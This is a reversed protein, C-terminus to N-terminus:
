RGIVLDNIREGIRIKKEVQFDTLRLSHLRGGELAVIMYDGDPRLALMTPSASLPITRVVKWSKRDIVMICNNEYSALYVYNSWPSFEIGWPRGLDAVRKKLAFDKVGIVYLDDSNLCSVLVADNDPSVKIDIPNYGVPLDGMVKRDSMRICSVTRAGSNIVYAMKDDQSIAVQRPNLGVLAKGTMKMTLTSFIGVSNRGNLNTVILEKGTRTVALNNCTIGVKLKEVIKQKKVDMISVIGSLPQAIYATSKEPLFVMDSGASGLPIKNAEKFSSLDIVHIYRDGVLYALYSIKPKAVAYVSFACCLLAIASIIVLFISIGKKRM